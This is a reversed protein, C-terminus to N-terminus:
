VHSEAAPRSSKQRIKPREGPPLVRFLSMFQAFSMSEEGRAAEKVLTEIENGSMKECMHAFVYNLDNVRLRGDDGAFRGFVRELIVDSDHDRMQLAMMGLFEAFDVTGSGDADVNKIMQELEEDTMKQGLSTMVSKLESTDISGSGDVDFLSFCEKFEAIQEEDLSEASRVLDQVIASSRLKVRGSATLEVDKRQGHGAFKVTSPGLPSRASTGNETPSPSTSTSPSPDEPQVPARPPSHIREREMWEAVTVNAM